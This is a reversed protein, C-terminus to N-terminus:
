SHCDLVAALYAPYQAFLQEVLQHRQTTQEPSEDWRYPMEHWTGDPTVIALPNFTNLSADPLRYVDEQLDHLMWGDWHGDPNVTSFSYHGQEDEYCPHGYWDAIRNWIEPDDPSLHYRKAIFMKEEASINERYPAVERESDYPAMLRTVTDVIDSTDAPILVVTTFRM